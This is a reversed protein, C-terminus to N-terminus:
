TGGPVALNGKAWDDSKDSHDHYLGFCTGDLVNIRSSQVVRFPGNRSWRVRAGKTVSMMWIGALVRSPGLWRLLCPCCRGAQRRASWRKDDDWIIRSGLQSPRM